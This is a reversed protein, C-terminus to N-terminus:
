PGLGAIAGGSFKQNRANSKAKGPFVSRFLPVPCNAPLCAPLCHSVSEIPVLPKSKSDPFYRFGWPLFSSFFRPSPTECACILILDCKSYVVFLFRSSKGRLIDLRGLLHLDHYINISTSAISLKESPQMRAAAERYKPYEEGIKLSRDRAEPCTYVAEVRGVRWDM